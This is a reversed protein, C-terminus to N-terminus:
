RNTAREIEALLTNAANTLEGALTTQVAAFGWGLRIAAMLPELEDPSLTRLLEGDDGPALGAIRLAEFYQFLSERIRRDAELRDSALSYYGSIARRLSDSRIIGFAGTSLIEEYTGTAFDFNAVLAVRQLAETLDRPTPALPDPALPSPPSEGIPPMATDAPMRAGLESLIYLSAAARLQANSSAASFDALDARLDSRLSELFYSERALEAQRSRWDDAALAVLVGVVIIAFEAALRAVLVRKTKM